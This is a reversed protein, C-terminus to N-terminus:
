PVTVAVGLDRRDGTMEMMKPNWTRSVEFTIVAVGKLVEGKFVVKKWGHDAFAVKKLLSGNGLVRVIVGKKEIDPHACKLYFEINGENFRIRESHEAPAFDAILLSARRGTWRFWRERDKQWGLIETGGWKEWKYFGVGDKPFIKLFSIPSVAAGLDRGDENIRMRLPNYTKDVETGIKIEKGEIGPVYYYLYRHDGDFLHIQDLLKGNLYVKFTLGDPETSNPGGAVVRFGFLDSAAEVRALAKRWMWRMKGKKWNEYPYYGYEFNDEGKNHSCFLKHIYGVALLLILSTILIKYHRELFGFLGILGKTNGEYIM